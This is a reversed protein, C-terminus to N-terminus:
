SLVKRLSDELDTASFQYGGEILRHPLARTSSLGIAEAKQSGLAMKLAFSPVSVLSPRGLTSALTESFNGQQVPNPSVVNFPGSHDSEILFLMADVVDRIDVWSWWQRGNGLPGGLGAKFIPVLRDLLPADDALVLGTRPHVVRIDAQRAVEASLEWDATLQALFDDAPGLSSEETLIEDGRDGYIGIASQAVYVSPPEASRTMEEALFISTKIRSDRLVRKQHATWRRDGINAGSLNIVVDVGKLARDDIRGEYPDWEYEDAYRVKRRVLRRVELGRQRLSETLATGILGSSGSMLITQLDHVGKIRHKIPLRIVSLEGDRIALIVFRAREPGADREGLRDVTPYQRAM